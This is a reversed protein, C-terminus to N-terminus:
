ACQKTEGLQHECFVRNCHVLSMSAGRNTHTHMSIVIM